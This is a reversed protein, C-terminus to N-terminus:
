RDIRCAFCGPKALHVHLYGVAEDALMRAILPDVDSGPCVDAEVLIGTADYARVSLLRKRLMAPLANSSFQKAGRRVYIPGSARYPTDVVHHAYNVLVLEDGPQADELSVRCPFGIPADAIVRRGNRAALAADDTFLSAFPAPDLGTIQM